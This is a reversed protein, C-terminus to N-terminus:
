RCRAAAGADLWLYVVTRILSIPHEPSALDHSAPLIFTIILSNAALFIALHSIGSLHDDNALVAVVVV